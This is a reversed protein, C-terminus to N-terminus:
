QPSQGALAQPQETQWATEPAVFSVTYFDTAKVSRRYGSHLHEAILKAAAFMGLTFLIVLLM